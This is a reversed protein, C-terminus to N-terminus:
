KWYRESESRSAVDATTSRCSLQSVASLRVLTISSDSLRGCMLTSSPMGCVLISGGSGSKM